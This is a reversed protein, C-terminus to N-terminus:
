EKLTEGWTEILTEQSKRYKEVRKFSKLRMNEYIIQSMQTHMFVALSGPVYMTIWTMPRTLFQGLLDFNNENSKRAMWFSLAVFVVGMANPILVSFFGIHNKHRDLFLMAWAPMLGLLTLIFVPWSLFLLFISIGIIIFYIPTNIHKEKKKLIKRSSTSKLLAM